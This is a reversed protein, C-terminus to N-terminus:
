LYPALVKTAMAKTIDDQAKIAIQQRIQFLSDLQIRRSVSMEGKSVKDIEKQVEEIVQEYANRMGMQFTRIMTPM